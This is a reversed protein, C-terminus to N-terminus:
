ATVLGDYHNAIADVSDLPYHEALRRWPDSHEHEGFAKYLDRYANLQPEASQFGIVQLPHIDEYRFQRQWGALRRLREVISTDVARKAHDAAPRGGAKRFLEANFTRIGDGGEYKVRIEAIRQGDERVIAMLRRCIVQQWNSPVVALMKPDVWNDTGLPTIFDAGQECALQFGDNFKRGLPMNEQHATWFGLQRAPELLEEEDGVVVAHGELKHKRLGPITHKALHQLCILTLAHRQYAPIVFWITKM